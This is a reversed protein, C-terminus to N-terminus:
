DNKGFIKYSKWKPEKSKKIEIPYICNADV